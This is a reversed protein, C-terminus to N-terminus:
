TQVALEDYAAGLNIDLRNPRPAHFDPFGPLNEMQIIEARSKGAKIEREVHALLAGLYDRMVLLDGRPGTIGHAQKGHGYLYIADAPYERIVAELVKIWGRVSCGSPRDTFPYLRNFVLDGMHVINAREFFIVADGGTHAPGFHRASVVEDGVECRWADTFLRDAYVQRAVDGTREAASRQLKPVNRHAVIMRTVPQFVGNGGTHDAHHHTNLVADLIRGNRGPLGGLCLAATDPFQTDVVVLAGPSALCGITGGRGTFVGVNRRLAKFATAPAPMQSPPPPATKSVSPRISAGQGFLTSRGALLGLSFAATSSCLFERRDM